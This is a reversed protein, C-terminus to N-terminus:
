PKDLVARVKSALASATYPKALFETGRDLVGNHVVANRTYGTTFLIKIGSRITAAEDAMARGSMGPMVIDTFILDIRNSQKLRDLADSGNAAEIVDYGLDRILQVSVQRVQADDEVVLITEGASATPWEDPMAKAIDAVEDKGSYRPLYLKVTTGQNLESYIKVHGGSQKVFGFVQSLGLGTGKGVEKTTYFPDFAREIVEASMGTGSDTVSIM